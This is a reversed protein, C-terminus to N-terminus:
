QTGKKLQAIRDIIKNHTVMSHDLDRISQLEDVRAARKEQEILSNIDEALEKRDDGWKYPCGQEGCDDCPLFSVVIQEVTMPEPTDNHPNVRRAEETLRNEDEMSERAAREIENKDFVVDVARKPKDDHARQTM